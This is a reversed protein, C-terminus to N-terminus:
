RDKERARKLFNTFLAIGLVLLAGIIFGYWFDNSLMNSSGRRSMYTLPWQLALHFHSSLASSTLSYLGQAAVVGSVVCRVSFPHPGALPRAHETQRIPVHLFPLM